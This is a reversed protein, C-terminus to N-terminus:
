SKTSPTLVATPVLFPDLGTHDCESQSATSRSGSIMLNSWAMVFDFSKQSSILWRVPLYHFSYFFSSFCLPDPLVQPRESEIHATRAKKQFPHRLAPHSKVLAMWPSSKYTCPKLSKHGNEVMSRKTCASFHKNSHMCKHPAPSLGATYGNTLLLKPTHRRRRGAAELWARPRKKTSKFRERV